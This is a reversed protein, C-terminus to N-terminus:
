GQRLRRTSKTSTRTSHCCTRTPTRSASTRWVMSRLRSDRIIHQARQEIALSRFRDYSAATDSPGNREIEAAQMTELIEAHAIFNKLTQSLVKDLLEREESTLVLHRGMGYREKGKRFDDVPVQQSVTNIDEMIRGLEALCRMSDGAHDATMADFERYPTGQTVTQIAKDLKPNKLSSSM